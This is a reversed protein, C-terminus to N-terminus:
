REAKSCFASQRSQLLFCEERKPASLVREAKSCFASQRSQLLFCEEQKPASLVREAKSCSANTRSQLLFANTRSGQTGCVVRPPNRRTCFSIPFHIEKENKWGMGCRKIYLSHVFSSGRPVAFHYRLPLSTTAFHVIDIFSSDIISIYIWIEM